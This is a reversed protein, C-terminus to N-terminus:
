GVTTGQPEEEEQKTGSDRCGTLACLLLVASLLLATIRKIQYPM